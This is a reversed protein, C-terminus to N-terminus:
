RHDPAGHPLRLDRDNSQFWGSVRGGTFSVHAMGYHWQTGAIHIIRDPTGQVGLVEDESSGLELYGRQRAREAVAADRPLLKVKLRRDFSQDWSVVRGDRFQVTDMDWFWKVGNIAFTSDPPGMVALVQEETSGLTFYDAPAGADAATTLMPGADVIAGATVAADATAGATVAADATAGATVAADAAAISAHGAPSREAGRREGYKVAIVVLAAIALLGFLILGPRSRRAARDGRPKAEPRPPEAAPPPNPPPDPIIPPPPAPAPKPKPKPAKTEASPPPGGNRLAQYAVNIERLKVAAKDRLREDHSFRDPHWVKALDRYAEKIAAPSAGPEVGLTRFHEHLGGV